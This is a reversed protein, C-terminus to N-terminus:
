FDSKSQANLLQELKNVCDSINNELDHEWFRIVRIGNKSLEYDRKKDKQQLRVSQQNKNCTPCGHWFCGDCEINVIQGNYEILIDPFYRKLLIKSEVVNYKQRLLNELKVQIKSNYYPNEKLRQLQWERRKNNAEESVTFNPTQQHQRKTAESIKRKAEATHKRGKFHQNGKLTKSIKQKGSETVHQKGKRSNGSNEGALAVREDIEKTLGKNWVM